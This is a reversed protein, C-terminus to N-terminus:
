SYRAPLTVGIQTAKQTDKRAECKCVSRWTMAGPVRQLVGAARRTEKHEEPRCTMSDPAGLPRVPKKTRNMKVCLYEYFAIGRWCHRISKRPRIRKEERKVKQISM